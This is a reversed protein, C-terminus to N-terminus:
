GSRLISSYTYSSTVLSYRGYNIKYNENEIGKYIPHKGPSPIEMQVISKWLWFRLWAACKVHYSPHCQMSKMYQMAFGWLVRVASLCISFASAQVDYWRGGHNYAIGTNEEHQKERERESEINGAPYTTANNTGEYRTSFLVLTSPSSILHASVEAVVIIVSIWLTRSFRSLFVLKLVVAAIAVVVVVVVFVVVFVVSSCIVDSCRGQM